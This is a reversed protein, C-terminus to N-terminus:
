GPTYFSLSKCLCARLFGPECPSRIENSGCSSFHIYLGAGGDVMLWGGAHMEGGGEEFLICFLDRAGVTALCGSLGNRPVHM